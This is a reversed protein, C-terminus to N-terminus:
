HCSRTAGDGNTAGDAGGSANTPSSPAAQGADQFGHAVVSTVLGLTLVLLLAVVVGSRKDPVVAKFVNQVLSGGAVAATTGALQLAAQVTTRFLEEPLAEATVRTLLLLALVDASFAQDRRALRHRLMERGKALRYSISGAPWGLRRAAEENTLGELYCLVLPAQYKAPLAHLEEDLVSRLEQWALDSYVDEAPMSTGRRECQSQRALRTRAKRAVRCAVGYLFNALLEPDRLSGARRVLVLFTAQFADEADHVHHLVRRCVGLVMPGHRRVLAEFAAQDRLRHFRELLERDTPEVAPSAQSPDTSGTRHALQGSTM